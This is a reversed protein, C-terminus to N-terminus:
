RHKKQRTLLRYGQAFICTVTISVAMLICKGIMPNALM